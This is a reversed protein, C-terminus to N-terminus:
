TEKISIINKNKIVIVKVIEKGETFKRVNDVNMAKEKISSEEEDVSINITGRLKGNVQVGIEIENDKTLEEDYTPWKEYAITDNYGLKEGDRWYYSSM